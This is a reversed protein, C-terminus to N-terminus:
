ISITGPLAENHRSVADISNDGGSLAALVKANGQTYTEIREHRPSGGISGNTNKPMDRYLPAPLLAHSVRFRRTKVFVLEVPQGPIQGM